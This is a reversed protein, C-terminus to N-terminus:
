CLNSMEGFSLWHSIALFLVYCYIFSLFLMLPCCSTKLKISFLLFLFANM